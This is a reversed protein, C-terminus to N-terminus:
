EGVEWAIGESRLYEAVDAADQPEIIYGQRGGLPLFPQPEADFYEALVRSGEPTLPIIWGGGFSSPVARAGPKSIDFLTM